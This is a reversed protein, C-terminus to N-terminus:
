ANLSRRRALLGLGALASAFLPLAAPVPVFTQGANVKGFTNSAASAWSFDDYVAGDGTLQLSDDVPTSSSESVGIDTSTVGAAAGDVATFAGEYSLFQVVKGADVLAIGDPSGNQIGPISFSITGFGNQQALISGSLGLTEYYAGGTGNYLVLMWDSLDTGAPGAIEIAEGVDAGVNDYHIENIFVASAFVPSSLILGGLVVLVQLIRSGRLAIISKTVM